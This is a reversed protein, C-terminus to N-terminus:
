NSSVYKEKDFTLINNDIIVNKNQFLFYKARKNDIFLMYHINDYPKIKGSSEIIYKNDILEVSKLPKVQCTYKKNKFMFYLDIGELLDEKSDTPTRVVSSQTNTKQDIVSKLFIAAMKENEEGIKVTATLKELVINFYKGGQIFIDDKNDNIFKKLEEKSQIKFEDIFWKCLLINSNAYNIISRIRNPDDFPLPSIFSLNDITIINNPYIKRLIYRIFNQYDIFEDYSMTFNSFIHNELISSIKIM